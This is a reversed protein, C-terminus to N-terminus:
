EILQDFNSSIYELVKMVKGYDMRQPGIVGIKGTSIGDINFTTSVLSCDHFQSVILENGIKVNVGEEQSNQELLDLLISNQELISLLSRIKNIDNFEPQSLFNSTGGTAVKTNQTKFLSSLISETFELLIPSFNYFENQIESVLQAVSKTLKNGVLKSRLVQLIIEIEESKFPASFRIKKHEVSGNETVFLILGERDSLQVYDLHKIELGPRETSVVVSTYNTIKSLTTATHEILLNLDSLKKSYMTKLKHAEERKLRDREMLDDVFIRYGLQSPIRGSSTHPQVLFGLEELDAMENRITAPSFGIQHRKALTRSGIPEATNIYDLVIAKLIERKRAGLDVMYDVGMKRTLVRYAQTSVICLIDNKAM